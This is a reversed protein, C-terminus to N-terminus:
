AGITAFYGAAKVHVYVGDPLRRISPRSGTFFVVAETVLACQRESLAITCDIPNKWHEANRVWDFATSLEGQTVDRGEIKAVVTKSFDEM